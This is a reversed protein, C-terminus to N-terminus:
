QPQISKINFSKKQKILLDNTVTALKGYGFSINRKLPIEYFFPRNSRDEITIEHKSVKITREHVLNGVIVGACVSNAGIERVYGQFNIRAQWMGMFIVCPNQLVPINHVRGSRFMTRKEEDATYLFSGPDSFYSRVGDFLEWHLVDDHLHSVLVAQNEYPLRFFLRFDESSFIALGFHPVTIIKLDSLNVAKKLLIVTDQTYLFIDKPPLPSKKRTSMSTKKIECLRSRNNSIKSIVLTETNNINTEGCLYRLMDSVRGAWLENTDFISENENDVTIERLCYLSKYEKISLENGKLSLKFLHGSDNDGIQIIDGNPKTILEMFSVIRCIKNWQDESLTIGNGLLLAVSFATIESSLRHYATSHEACGGDPLFQHDLEKLFEKSAFRFWKKTEATKIYSSIFLLGCLNSLYHNGSRRSFLAKELNRVIFRGHIIINRAFYKEFSDHLIGSGDCLKFLDFAILMNAARIAVEMACAWNIGFGVPNNECFDFIQNRFEKIPEENGSYISFLALQPLHQLRALEWPMKIDVGKPIDAMCELSSKTIDFRYGTKLDRQWDICRYDSDLLNNMPPNIVPTYVHVGGLGVSFADFDASVWGSGLIDFKHLFYNEIAIPPIAECAIKKFYDIDSDTFIRTMNLHKPASSYHKLDNKEYVGAFGSSLLARRLYIRAEIM